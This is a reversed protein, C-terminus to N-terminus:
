NNVGGNRYCVFPFRWVNGLDVAFGIVALLFEAKKDWTDRDTVDTVKDTNCPVSNGINHKRKANLQEFINSLLSNSTQVGIETKSSSLIVASELSARNSSASSSCRTEDNECADSRVAVTRVGGEVVESKLECKLLKKMSDSKIDKQICASDQVDKAFGTIPLGAM